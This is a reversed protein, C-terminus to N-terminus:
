WARCALDLIDVPLERKTLLWWTDVPLEVNLLWWRGSYEAMMRAEGCGKTGDVVGVAAAWV